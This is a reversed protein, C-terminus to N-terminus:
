FSITPFRECDEGKLEFCILSQLRRLLKRLRKERRLVQRYARALERHEKTSKM